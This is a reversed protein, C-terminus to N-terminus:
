PVLRELVTITEVHSTQPFQDVPIVPRVIQYGLKALQACDRGATVPSCSIYVLRQPQMQVTAEILKHTLGRRPPDVIVVDPKIGQAAWDVFQDPADALIYDANNIQNITVNKKADAVAGAVVEVGIVQRVQDAVSIGITGIGSYADVVLDSPQLQAAQAALQYLKETMSPNVQYFSNPGILFRYGLLSDYIAGAGWLVQNHPSLLVYDAKPSVNLILSKLEPLAAVIAKVVEDLQPIVAENSVLVVMLEHSYYGRRVMVYRLAGEQRDPDFASVQLDALIQRVTEIAQDIKSDNVYYDTMSVLHHSGRQYFGTLLEGDQWKLPVITKNRYYTPQDMGVPPEVDVTLGAQQFALRVQEKKWQLQASYQWNVLPATGAEILYQRDQNEREPSSTLWRQIRGYASKKDVQIIEVEVLEGPIADAVYIPYDAQAWIIGMGNFRLSDVEGQFKQNLQVPLVTKAM